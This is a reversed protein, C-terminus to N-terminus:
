YENSLNNNLNNIFYEFFCSQSWYLVDANLHKLFVFFLCFNSGLLWIVLLILFNLFFLCKLFLLYFNWIYNHLIWCNLLM